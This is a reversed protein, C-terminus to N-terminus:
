FTTKLTDLLFFELPKGQPAKKRSKKIFYKNFHGLKMFGGRGQFIPKNLLGAHWVKDFAKSLDLGVARTAGSRNFARAIRDSM